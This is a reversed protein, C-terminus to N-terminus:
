GLDDGEDGGVWRDDPGVLDLLLEARVGPAVELAQGVRASQLLQRAAVVGTDWTDWRGMRLDAHTLLPVVGPVTDCVAAVLILATVLCQSM